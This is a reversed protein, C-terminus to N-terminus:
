NITTERWRESTWPRTDVACSLFPVAHSSTQAIYLYWSASLSNGSFIVTSTIDRLSTNHGDLWYWGLSNEISNNNNDGDCLLSWSLFSPNICWRWWWLSSCSDIACIHWNFQFPKEYVERSGYKKNEWWMHQFYLVGSINGVMRRHWDM